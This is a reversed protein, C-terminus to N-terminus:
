MTNAKGETLSNRLSDEAALADVKGPHTHSIRGLYISDAPSGLVSSASVVCGRSPVINDPQYVRRNPDKHILGAVFAKVDPPIHLPSNKYQECRKLWTDHALVGKQFRHLVKQDNQDNQCINAFWLEAAFMGLVFYLIKENRHKIYGNTVIREEALTTTAIDGSSLIRLTIAGKEEVCEVVAQRWPSRIGEAVRFEVTDGETVVTPRGHASRRLGLTGNYVLGQGFVSNVEPIPLFEEPAINTGSCTWLENDPHSLDHDFNSATYTGNPDRQLGVNELKVDKLVLGREFTQMTIICEQLMLDKRFQNSMIDRPPKPLLVLMQQIEYELSPVDGPSDHYTLCQDSDAMNRQWTDLTWQLEANIATIKEDSFATNNWQISLLEAWDRTRYPELLLYKRIFDMQQFLHQTFGVGFRVVALLEKMVKHFMVVNTSMGTHNEWACAYQRTQKCVKFAVNSVQEFLVRTGENPSAVCSKQCNNLLTGCTELLIKMKEKPIVQLTGQVKFIHTFINNVAIFCPLINTYLYFAFAGKEVEASILTFMEIDIWAMLMGSGKCNGWEITAMKGVVIGGTDSGFQETIKQEEVLLENRRRRLKLAVSSGGECPECRYVQSFAGAGAHTVWYNIENIRVRPDKKTLQLKRNYNNSAKKSEMNQEKQEKYNEM